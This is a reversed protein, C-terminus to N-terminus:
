FAVRGTRMGRAMARRIPSGGVGGAMAPGMREEAAAPM